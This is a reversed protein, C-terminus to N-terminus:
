PRIAGKKAWEVLTRRYIEKLPLGTARAAAVADEYEPSATIVRGKRLGIKVRM